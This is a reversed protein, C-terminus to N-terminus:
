GQGGPARQTWSHKPNPPRPAKSIPAGDIAKGLEQPNHNSGEQGQGDDAGGDKKHVSPNALETLIKSSATAGTPSPFSPKLPHSTRTIEGWIELEWLYSELCLPKQQFSSAPRWSTLDTSNLQMRFEQSENGLLSSTGSGRGPHTVPWSCAATHCPAPLVLETHM